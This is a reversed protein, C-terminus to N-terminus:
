AKCLVVYVIPVTSFHIAAKSDSAETIRKKGVAVPDKSGATENKIPLNAPALATDLVQGLTVLIWYKARLKPWPKVTLNM